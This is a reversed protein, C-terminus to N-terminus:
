ALARIAQGLEDVLEAAEDRGLWVLERQGKERWTDLHEEVELLYVDVACLASRSPLRKTYLYTAIPKRSIRGAVGAEERAELAAAQHPKLGKVPWGKPVIWRRTQRSPVLLVRLSGDAVRRVPLAAVQRRTAGVHGEIEGDILAM